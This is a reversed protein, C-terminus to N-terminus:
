DRKRAAASGLRLETRYKAVTRRAIRIGQEALLEALKQDSLPRSHDEQRILELLRLKVTQQSPGESGLARSFFYRLPYTGQRCQLYKEQTARSVTSPHLHLREALTVMTMPVLETTQGAFFARQTGPDGGRVPPTTGGRRELSNLLWKAQQMKAPSLGPDGARQIGESAACLVQSISVRPLYYDNLIVQLKGDLEAIFLDPRVYLTPEAPQFSRGPCPDLASIRKEAARVEEPTTHLERAILSYHKKGLDPLFRRVIEMDLPPLM